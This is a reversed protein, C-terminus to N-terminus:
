NKKKRDDVSMQMLLVATVISVGGKEEGEWRQLNNFSLNSQSQLCRDLAPLRTCCKRRAWCLSFSVARGYKNLCIWCHPQFDHGWKKFHLSQTSPTHPDTSCSLIYLLCFLSSVFQSRAAASCHLCNCKSRSGGVEHRDSPSADSSTIQGFM